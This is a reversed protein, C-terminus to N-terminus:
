VQSADAAEQILTIRLARGTARDVVAHIGHVRCAGSAVEYGHPMGTRFRKVAVAADMGIVGMSPGTMGLDTIYGTGGPLIQQDATQVHTHTGVLLSVKGDLVRSLAIKESTAEAHFDVIVVSCEALAESLVQEACGFPCDVLQGTFVRGMLNCVGISINKKKVITWGRGPSGHPYNAPRIVKESHKELFGHFERKQWAHDGLTIVDVGCNLIEQATKSDIATGGAANEGNVVVLDPSYKERLRPLVAALANRGPRGVVDGLVIVSLSNDVVNSCHM